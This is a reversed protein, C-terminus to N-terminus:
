RWVRYTDLVEKVEPPMSGPAYSISPGDQTSSSNFGRRGEKIIKFRHVAWECAARVIENPMDAREYGCRYTVTVKKPGNVFVSGDILEVKGTAEYCVYDDSGVTLTDNLLASIRIVPTRKLIFTCTGDGDYKESTIDRAAFTRGTYSEIQASIGNIVRRIMEDNSTDESGDALRGIKLDDKVDALECIAIKTSQESM